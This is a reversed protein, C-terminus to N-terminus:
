DSDSDTDDVIFTLSKNTELEKLPNNNEFDKVDEDSSGDNDFLSEMLSRMKKAPPVMVSEHNYSEGHMITNNADSLKRTDFVAPNSDADELYLRNNSADHLTRRSVSHFCHKICM